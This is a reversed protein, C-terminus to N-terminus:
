NHKIIVITIDDPNHAGALWIDVQSMLEKILTEANMHSNETIISQIQPYDFLAGSANPAEALGDSIIALIDGKNFETTLQDYEVNKFSGLPIGSLMIEETSQSNARYIFYPPMGASSLTLQNGKLLAINLSMRLIGLDVKKVVTNMDSLMKNPPMQPLGIIGAKTISVLMGSPTGHGTADGCITYLSGDEQEFFDYYDGGIETSTRLYTAIDLREIIPNQKPLLREQLAKAEALENNKREDELAKKQQKQKYQIFLFIGSLLLLVYITYAWWTFWPAPSIKIKVYAGEENWLGDNNSAIVRFTYEGAPLNTYTTYHRSGSERWDNDYGVMMYKYKNQLTNKYNFAVFDIALINEDYKVEIPEDTKVAEIPVIKNKITIKQIIVNPKQVNDSVDKYNFYNIGGQGSYIFDGEKTMFSAFANYEYGQAGESPTLNKFQKKQISYRILGYDSSMWLNSAPDIRLDYVLQTPMGDNITFNKKTQEKLNIEALGYDYGSIFAISDKYVVLNFFNYVTKYTFDKYDIKPAINKFTNLDENWLLLRKETLIYTKGKNSHYFSYIRENRLYALPAYPKGIFNGNSDVLQISNIGGFIYNKNQTIYRQGLGLNNKDKILNISNGLSKFVKGNREKKFIEIGANIIPFTNMLWMNQKADESLVWISGLKGNTKPSHKVLKKSIVDIEYIGDDVHDSGAVWLHKDPSIYAGWTKTFPLKLAYPEKDSITKIEKRTPNYKFLGDNTAMWINGQKDEIIKSISNKIFNVDPYTENNLHTVTNTKIHIIDLGKPAIRAWLEQKQPNFYIASVNNDMISNNNGKQFLFAPKLGDKKNFIFIGKNTSVYWHTNDIQAFDKFNTETAISKTELYSQTFKKTKTNFIVLGDSTAILLEIDSIEAIKSFKNSGYSLQKWTKNIRDFVYLGNDYSTVVIEKDDKSFWIDRFTINNNDLPYNEWTDNARNLKSLVHQTGVWLNQHHDEKIIRKQGNPIATSDFVSARYNKFVYGDFRELGITGVWVYGLHDQYVTFCAAESLGDKIKYSEFSYDTPYQAKVENHGLLIFNFLIFISVIRM